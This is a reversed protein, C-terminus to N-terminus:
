LVLDENMMLFTFSIFFILLLIVSRKLTPSLLEPDRAPGCVGDRLHMEDDTGGLTREVERSPFYEIFSAPFLTEVCHGSSPSM